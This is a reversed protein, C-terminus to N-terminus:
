ILSMKMSGSENTSKNIFPSESFTLISTKRTHHNISGEPDQNNVVKHHKIRWFILQRM